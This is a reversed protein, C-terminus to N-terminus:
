VLPPNQSRALFNASEHHRAPVFNKTENGFTFDDM